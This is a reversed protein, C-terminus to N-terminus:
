ADANEEPEADCFNLLDILQDRRLLLEEVFVIQHKLSMDQKFFPLKSIFEGVLDRRHQVALGWTPFERGKTTYVTKRAITDDM